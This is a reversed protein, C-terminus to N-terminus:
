NAEEDESPYKAKLEVLATKTSIEAGVEEDLSHPSRWLSVSSSNLAIGYWM